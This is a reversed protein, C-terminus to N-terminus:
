RQLKQDRDCTQRERPQVRVDDIDSDDCAVRVIDEARPGTAAESTSDNSTM